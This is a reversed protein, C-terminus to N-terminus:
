WGVMGWAPSPLGSVTRVLEPDKLTRSACVAAGFRRVVTQAPTGADPPHDDPARWSTDGIASEWRASALPSSAPRAGGYGYSWARGKNQHWSASTESTMAAPPLLGVASRVLEM